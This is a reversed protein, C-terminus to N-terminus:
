FFVASLKVAYVRKHFFYFFDRMRGVSAIGVIRCAAASRKDFFDGVVYFFAHVQEFSRRAKFRYVRDAASLCFFPVQHLIFASIVPRRSCTSVMASASSKPLAAIMKVEKFSNEPM